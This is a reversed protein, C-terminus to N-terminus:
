IKKGKEDDELSKINTYIKVTLLLLNKVTVILENLENDDTKTIQLVDICSIPIGLADAIKQRTETTIDGMIDNEIGRLEELDLQAGYALEEQSM